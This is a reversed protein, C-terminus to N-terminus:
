YNYYRAPIVYFYLVIFAVFLIGLVSMPVLLFIWKALGDLLKIIWNNSKRESVPKHVDSQTTTFNVKKNKVSNRLPSM